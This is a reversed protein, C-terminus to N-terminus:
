PVTVMGLKAFHSDFTFIAEIGKRRMLVASTADTFSL